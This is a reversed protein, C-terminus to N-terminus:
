SRRSPPSCANTIGECQGSHPVPSRGIASPSMSRRQGLAWYQGAWIRSRIAKRPPREASSM